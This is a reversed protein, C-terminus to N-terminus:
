TCHTPLFFVVCVSLECAFTGSKTKLQKFYLNLLPTKFFMKDRPIKPLMLAAFSRKEDMCNKARSVSNRHLGFVEAVRAGM